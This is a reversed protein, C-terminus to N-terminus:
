HDQSPAAFREKAGHMKKMLEVVNRFRSVAVQYARWADIFHEVESPPVSSLAKLFEIELNENSGLIVSAGLEPIESLVM